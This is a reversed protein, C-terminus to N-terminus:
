LLINRASNTSSAQILCVARAAIGEGRGIIGIHEGTTAKVSVQSPSIGYAKAINVRMEEIYPSMKPEQAEITSDINVVEYGAQKLMFRTEAALLLSDAGEFRPDTDPFHRGIDGLAAAGLVSNMVAHTLVDADSHGDLCRNWPIIVGGIVLDRGGSPIEKVRHLDYGEGIRLFAAASM